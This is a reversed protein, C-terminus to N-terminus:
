FREPMLSQIDIDPRQGMILQAVLKGTIPGLTMGLMGHGTAVILNEYQKSWGIIPLGDPTVPRLGRWIEMPKVEEIGNLYRDVAQRIAAVRHRNVAMDLGALELTGSFRLRDDMPTVAVKSEALYLPAPLSLSSAKITLSYGKAAQIPLRLRLDRALLPSWAGAALVVTDPHLDGRTTIVTTIRRDATEFGLVETKTMLLAGHEQALAAMGQVFRDPILHADEQYLIGGVVNTAANPLIRHVGAYDLTESAVGYKQLLGAEGSAEKLGEQSAFLLLWGKRQYGCALREAAILEELLAASARSLSLLVPIAKHMPGHRCAWVFRCLWLLLDLDLRPKIYFPSTADLLWKLSRTLVGPAALPIAYSPVILGANGYSCGAAIDEKELVTVPAGQIALYYASCIGIVGGGIILTEGPIPEM